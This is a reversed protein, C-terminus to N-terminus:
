EDPECSECGECGLSEAKIRWLRVVSGRVSRQVTLNDKGPILVSDERLQNGIALKSFKLPHTKNIERLVIDPLLYAFGGDRYGLVITGPAHDHPQRLDDEIICQGGALLQGLLDLFMRGAREQQVVKVTEVIADQWLPLVEDADREALFEFLLQFVTSLVAWTEIM